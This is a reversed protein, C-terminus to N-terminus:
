AGAPDRAGPWQPAAARGETGFGVDAGALTNIEPNLLAARGSATEAERAPDGRRRALSAEPQQGLEAPRPDNGRLAGVFPKRTM